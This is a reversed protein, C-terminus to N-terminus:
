NKKIDLLLTQIANYVQDTIAATVPLGAKQELATIAAITKPGVIGDVALDAGFSIYGTSKLVNLGSQIWSTNNPHAVALAAAAAQLEPALKPFAAAGLAALDQEIKTNKVVDAVKQLGQNASSEWAGIIDHAVQIISPLLAIIFQWNM